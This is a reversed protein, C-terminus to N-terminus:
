WYKPLYNRKKFRRQTERDKEFTIGIIANM